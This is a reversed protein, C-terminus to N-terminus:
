KSGYGYMTWQPYKSNNGYRDQSAIPTDLVDGPTRSKAHGDCYLFNAQTGNAHRFIASQENRASGNWNGITTFGPVDTTSPVGRSYQMYALAVEYGATSDMVWITRDPTLLKSAPTGIGAAGPGCQDAYQTNCYGYYMANLGYSGWKLYSGATTPYNNAYQYGVGKEGTSFTGVDDPCNFVNESKVYPYIADMWKYAQGSNNSYSYSGGQGYWANVLCEDNDQTYQLLGLGIQKLNSACTSQRAKERATAFVPFLIAALIAIIAIVVLLEILTFGHKPKMKTRLKM